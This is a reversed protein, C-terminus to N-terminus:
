NMDADDVAIVIAADSWIETRHHRHADAVVADGFERWLEALDQRSAQANELEVAFHEPDLRKARERLGGSWGSAVSAVFARWAKRCPLDGPRLDWSAAAPDG